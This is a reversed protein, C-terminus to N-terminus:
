CASTIGNMCGYADAALHGLFFGGSLLALGVVILHLPALELAMLGELRGAERRVGLRTIRCASSVLAIPIGLFLSVTVALIAVSNHAIWDYAVTVGVARIMGAAVLAIFPALLLLGVIGIWTRARYARAPKSWGEPLRGVSVSATMRLPRREAHGHFTMWRAAPTTSRAM